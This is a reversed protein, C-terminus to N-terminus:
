NVLFLIRLTEPKNTYQVAETMKSQSKDGKIAVRYEIKTRGSFPFYIELYTSEGSQTGLTFSFKGGNLNLKRGGFSASFDAEPVPPSVEVEIVEGPEGTYLSTLKRLARDVIVKNQELERPDKAVERLAEIAGEGEVSGAIITLLEADNTLKKILLLASKKQKEDKGATLPMLRGVAEIQSLTIQSSKYVNDREAQQANFKYTFFSGLSLLLISSFFKILIDFKDWGDKKKSEGKEIPQVQSQNLEDGKQEPKKHSENIETTQAMAAGLKLNDTQQLSENIETTQTM